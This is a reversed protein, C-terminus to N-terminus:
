LIKGNVFVCSAKLQELAEGLNKVKSILSTKTQGGLLILM